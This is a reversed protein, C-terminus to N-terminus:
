VTYQHVIHVSHVPTCQASTYMSTSQTEPTDQTSTYYMQLVNTSDCLPFDVSNVQTSTYKNVQTNTNQHISTYKTYKHTSTFHHVQQVQTNQEIPLPEDHLPFVVKGVVGSQNSAERHTTSREVWSIQMQLKIHWCVFGIQNGAERHTSQEYCVM